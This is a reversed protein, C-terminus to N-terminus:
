PRVEDREVADILEPTGSDLVARASKASRTSVNLKEAAQEITLTGIPGKEPRGPKLTAIKGTVMARQSESLHEALEREYAAVGLDGCASAIRISTM